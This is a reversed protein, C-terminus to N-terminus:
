YVSVPWMNRQTHQLYFGLRTGSLIFFIGSVFALITHHPRIHGINSLVFGIFMFFLSVLPFPTASRIMEPSPASFSMLKNLVSKLFTWQIQPNWLNTGQKNSVQQWLAVQDDMDVKGWNLSRKKQRKLKLSMGFSRISTNQGWFLLVINELPPPGVGWTLINHTKSM